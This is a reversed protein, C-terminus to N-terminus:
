SLREEKLDTTSAKGSRDSHSTFPAAAKGEKEWRVRAAKVAIEKRREPTQSKARLRALAQAAKNKM